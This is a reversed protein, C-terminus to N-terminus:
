PELDLRDAGALLMAALRRAEGSTLPVMVRHDYMLAVVADDTMGDSLRQDETLSVEFSGSAPRLVRKTSGNRQENLYFGGIARFHQRVGGMVRETDRTDEDDHNTNCWAPCIPARLTTM